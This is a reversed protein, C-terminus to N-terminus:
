KWKDEYKAGWVLLHLVTSNLNFKLNAAEEACREMYEPDSTVYESANRKIVELFDKKFNNIINKERAM